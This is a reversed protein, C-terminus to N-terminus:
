RFQALMILRSPSRRVRRDDSGAAGVSYGRCGSSHQGTERVQDGNQGGSVTPSGGPRYAAGTTRGVLRWRWYAVFMAGRLLTSLGCERPCSPSAVRGVTEWSYSAACRNIRGIRVGALSDRVWPAQRCRAVQDTIEIAEGGEVLRLLESARAATGEIGSPYHAVQLV